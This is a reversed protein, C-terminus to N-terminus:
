YLCFIRTQDAKSFIKVFTESYKAKKMKKKNWADWGSKKEAM